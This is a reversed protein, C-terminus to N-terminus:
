DQLDLLAALNALQESFEAETELRLSRIKEELYLRTEFACRVGQAISEAVNEVYVPANGYLFRTTKLDSVVVPIEFAMAEHVGSLQTGDRNTLVLAVGANAFLQNFDHLPLFDTLTLNPPLSNRMASSLRESYWTMVFRVQPLSRAAEIVAELPEDSAINWPLIVYSKPSLGLHQMLPFQEGDLLQKKAIGTRLVFPTIGINGEVHKAVHDNHVIMIGAKLLKTAFAWKYWHEYVMSNHCDAVYRSGTLWAYLAVCYLAPTPPLQVFVFSPRRQFLWTLTAIGKLSYSLTKHFKSKEEWAYHFYRIKLGLEPALVDVRRQFVKWAIFVGRGQEIKM